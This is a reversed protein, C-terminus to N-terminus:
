TVLIILNICTSGAEYFTWETKGASSFIAQNAANGLTNNIVTKRLITTGNLQVTELTFGDPEWRIFINVNRFLHCSLHIIPGNKLSRDFEKDEIIIQVARYGDQLLTISCECGTQIKFYLSTKTDVSINFYPISIDSTKNATVFHITRFPQINFDSINYKFTCSYKNSSNSAPFYNHYLSTVNRKKQKTVRKGKLTIM